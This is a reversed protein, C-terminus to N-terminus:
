LEGADIKRHFIEIANSRFRTLGRSRAIAAVVHPQIVAADIFRSDVASRPAAHM